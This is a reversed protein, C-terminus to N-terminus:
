EDSFNSGLYASRRWYNPVIVEDPSRAYIRELPGNMTLDTRIPLSVGIGGSGILSSMSLIRAHPTNEGYM